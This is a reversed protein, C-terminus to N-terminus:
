AEPGPRWVIEGESALEAVGWPEFREYKERTTWRGTLAASLTKIAEAPERAPAPWRATEQAPTLPSSLLMGSAAVTM